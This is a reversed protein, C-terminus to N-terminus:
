STHLPVAGSANKVAVRVAYEETPFWSIPDPHDEPMGELYIFVLESTDTDLFVRRPVTSLPIM